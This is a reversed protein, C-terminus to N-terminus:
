LRNLCITYIEASDSYSSKPKFIKVVSFLKKCMKLIDAEEKGRILKFVLNGGKDLITQAFEIASNVLEASRLHDLSRDGCSEAAMDSLILDPKKSLSTKIQDQIPAELFNGQILILGPIDLAIKLLDTGILCVNNKKKSMIVQLWGGPAAGIDIISSSRNILKYKEEIEILKFAARSVFGQKKALHVYPDNIHRRLWDVSSNARGRATKVQQKKTRYRRIVEQTM